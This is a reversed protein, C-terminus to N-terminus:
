GNTYPNCNIIYVYIFYVLICCPDRKVLWYLPSYSPKQEHSMDAISECVWQPSREQTVWVGGQLDAFVSETIWASGNWGPHPYCGSRKLITLSFFPAIILGRWFAFPVIYGGPFMNRSLLAKSHSSHNTGLLIQHLFQMFNSGVYHTTLHSSFFPIRPVLNTSLQCAFSKLNVGVRENPPRPHIM